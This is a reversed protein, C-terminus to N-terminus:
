AGDVQAVDEAIQEALHEVHAAALLPLGPLPAAFIQAEIQGDFKFIRDEALFRLDLNPAELRARGTM